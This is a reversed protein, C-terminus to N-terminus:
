RLNSNLNKAILDTDYRLMELYTAAASGSDGLSDTYLDTVVKVNAEQAVQTALETNISRDTFVAAVKQQKIKEVLEAIQQASPRADTSISPIVTGVIELGYEEAYYGFVDHSTVLKRNALPITAIQARVYDDLEQLKAQYATNNALYFDANAPDLYMLKTTLEKCITMVKGASFWIHPDGEPHEDADDSAAVKIHDAATFVKKERLKTELLKEFSQELGVGNRVVFDANSFTRADETTATYEHPDIGPQIIQSLEVRDGAIERVFDAMQTTTAVVKLKGTDSPKLNNQRFVLLVGVILLVLSIVIIAPNIKRPFMM